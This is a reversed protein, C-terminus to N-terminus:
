FLGLGWQGQARQGGGEVQRRADEAEAGVDALEAKLSSITDNASDLMAKKIQLLLSDPTLQLPDEISMSLLAGIGDRLESGGRLSSIHCSGQMEREEKWKGQRLSPGEGVMLADNTTALQATLAEVQAVAARTEGRAGGLSAEMSVM